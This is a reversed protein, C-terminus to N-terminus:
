ARTDSNSRDAQGFLPPEAQYVKGQARSNFLQVQRDVAGLENGITTSLRRGYAPSVVYAETTALVDPMAAFTVKWARMEMGSLHTIKRRLRAKVGARVGYNYDNLYVFDADNPLRELASAVMQADIDPSLRADDELILIPQTQEGVRRWLEVHSLTCGLNGRLRGETMHELNWPAIRPKLSELDLQSGDVAVFPEVDICAQLGTEALHERFAALREPRKALSVVYARM